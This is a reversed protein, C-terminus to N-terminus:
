KKLADFPLKAFTEPHLKRFPSGAKAVPLAFEFLAEKPPLCSTNNCAQYGLTAKLKLAGPATGDKIKILAGLVAEGEYVVLEAESYAFRGRHGKPYYTEV